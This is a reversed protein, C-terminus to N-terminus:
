HFVFFYFMFINCKICCTHYNKLHWWNKLNSRPMGRTDSNSKDKKKKDKEDEEEENYELYAVIVSIDDCGYKVM